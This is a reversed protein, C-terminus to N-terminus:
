SRVTLKWPGGGLTTRILAATEGITLPMRPLDLGHRRLIKVVQMVKPVEIGLGAVEEKCLVEEPPGDEVVRGDNLVVVRQAMSVLDDLRHDAVVVTRGEKAIRSILRLVEDRAAPDLESAPEDLLLLRSEMALISAIALRQTEGGSLSFVERDRLGSLGVFALYEDVRRLIEEPQIRLNELGFAVDRWVRSSIIQDEPFQFISGVKQALKNPKTQRTNEGAVEVQGQLEGEYFHPILGNLVRLLTSKGSGSPGTLLVFEGERIELDVKSLALEGKGKYRFSVRELRAALM